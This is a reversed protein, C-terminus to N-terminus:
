IREKLVFVTDDSEIERKRKEKRNKFVPAHKNKIHHYLVVVFKLVNEFILSFSFSCYMSASGKKLFFYQLKIKGTEIQRIPCRMEEENKKM